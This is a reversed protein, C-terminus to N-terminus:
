GILRNPSDVAIYNMFPQGPNMRPLLGGNIGVDGDKTEVLWYNM